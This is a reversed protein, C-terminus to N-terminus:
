GKSFLVTLGPSMNPRFPVTRPQIIIDVVQCKVMCLVAWLNREVFSALVAFLLQRAEARIRIGIEKDFDKMITVNGPTIKSWSHSEEPNDDGPPPTGGSSTVIYSDSATDSNGAYDTVSCATVTFTGAQVTAITTVASTASSNFFVPFVFGTRKSRTLMRKASKLPNVLITAEIGPSLSTSSNSSIKLFYSSIM